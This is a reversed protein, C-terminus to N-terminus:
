TGRLLREALAIPLGAARVKEATAVCDYPVRFFTLVEADPDFIAYSAASNGDRPQGVAGAVCTWRRRRAVPIPVGPRPQFVGATGPATSHYLAPTHVHGGFVWRGGSAEVSRAARLPDTVYGWDGPREASAHVFVADGARAVLPLGALFLRQDAPLRARTWRVAAAAAPDMSATDGTAVAADHNGGVVIAGRAAHEEVIRLVAVPDANYGVLDGLFVHGDVGAAAAHALCALTAELNSHLDALLALKM